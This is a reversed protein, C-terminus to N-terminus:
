GTKLEFYVRDSRNLNFVSVAIADLATADGRSLDTLSMAMSMRRSKLGGSSSGDDDDNGDGMAASNPGSGFPNELSDLVERGTALPRVSIGSTMRLSALFAARAGMPGSATLPPSKGAVPAADTTKAAEQPSSTHRGPVKPAAPTDFLPAMWAEFASGIREDISEAVKAKVLTSLWGNWVRGVINDVKRASELTIEQKGVDARVKPYGNAELSIDLDFFITFSATGSDSFGLLGRKTIEYAAGHIILRLGRLSVVTPSTHATGIAANYSFSIDEPLLSPLHPKLTSFSYSFEENENNIPDLQWGIADLGQLLSSVKVRLTSSPNKWIREVGRSVRAVRASGVLGKWLSMVESYFVHKSTLFSPQATLASFYLQIEDFQRVTHEPSYLFARSPHVEISETSDPVTATIHVIAKNVSDLVGRLAGTLEVGAVISRRLDTSSGTLFTVLNLVSEVLDTVSDPSGLQKQIAPLVRLSLKAFTELARLLLALHAPSAILSAFLADLNESTPSKLSFHYGSTSLPICHIYTTLPFTSM